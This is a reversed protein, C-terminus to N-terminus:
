LGGRGTATNHDPVIIGAHEHVAQERASWLVPGPAGITSAATVRGQVYLRDLEAIVDRLSWGIAFAITGDAQAPHSELYVLVPSREGERTDNTLRALDSPPICHALREGDYTPADGPVRTGQEQTGQEQMWKRGDREDLLRRVARTLAADARMADARAAYERAARDLTLALAGTEATGGHEIQMTHLAEAHATAVVAADVVAREAPTM